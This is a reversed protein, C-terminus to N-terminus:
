DRAAPVMWLIYQADAIQVSELTISDVLDEIDDLLSDLAESYDSESVGARFDPGRRGRRVRLARVRFAIGGVSASGGLVIAPDAQPGEEFLAQPWAITPAPIPM